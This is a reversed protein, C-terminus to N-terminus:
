DHYVQRKQRERDNRYKELSQGFSGWRSISSDLHSIVKKSWEDTEWGATDFHFTAAYFVKGPYKGTSTIAYDLQQRVASSDSHDTNLTILRFNDRLAQDEFCARDSNIHVHSDIKLVTQYDKLAYYNNQCGAFILILVIFCPIRANM